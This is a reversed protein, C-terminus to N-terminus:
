PAGKMWEDYADRDLLATWGPGDILHAPILEGTLYLRYMREGDQVVPTMGFPGMCRLWEEDTM